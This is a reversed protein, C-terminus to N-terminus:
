ILSVSSAAPHHFLQKKLAIDFDAAKGGALAWVVGTLRDGSADSAVVLLRKAPLTFSEPILGKMKHFHYTKGGMRVWVVEKETNLIDGSRILADLEKLTLAKQFGVYRYKTLTVALKMEGCMQAVSLAENDTIKLGIFLETAMKPAAAVNMKPQAVRLSRAKVRKKGGDEIWRKMSQFIVDGETTREPHPMLAMVNGDPNTLGALNLVSGNPNTPFTPDIEGEATAYVFANQGNEIITTLLAPDSATFRGEGHAIPVYITGEFDNFANTGPEAGSTLHVWRNVFYSEGDPFRNHALAMTSTGFAFNPVLGTEILVQAGNCIGLVVAGRKAAAAVEAMASDRSAILGSRGRDEFSFGGAIVIADVTRLEKAENWRVVKADFGNRALAAVAELECNTGPFMLVAATPKKPMAFLFSAAIKVFLHLVVNTMGFENRSRLM